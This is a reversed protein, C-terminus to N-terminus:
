SVPTPERWGRRQIRGDLMTAIADQCAGDNPDGQQHQQYQGPEIIMSAFLVL